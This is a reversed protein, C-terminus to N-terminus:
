RAGPRRRLEKRERERMGRGERRARVPAVRVRVVDDEAEYDLGDCAFWEFLDQLFPDERREVQRRRRKRRRDLQSRVEHVAVDLQRARRNDVDRRREVRRPAPRCPRDDGPWPRYSRGGTGGGG